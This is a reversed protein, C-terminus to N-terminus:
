ESTGDCFNIHGKEYHYKLQLVEAETKPDYYGDSGPKLPHSSNKNFIYPVAGAVFGVKLPEAISETATEDKPAADGGEQKKAAEAAAAEEAAKKEALQEQLTM